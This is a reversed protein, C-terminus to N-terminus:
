RLANLALVVLAMATFLAYAGLARGRDGARLQRYLVWGYAGAEVAAGAVGAPATVLGALVGIAGLTHLAGLLTVVWLNRGQTVGLRTLKDLRPLGIRARTVGVVASPVTELLLLVTAIVTVAYM